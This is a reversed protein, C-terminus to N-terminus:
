KKTHKDPWEEGRQRAEVRDMARELREIKERNQKVENTAQMHTRVVAAVAVAVGVLVGIQDWEFTVAALGLLALPGAAPLKLAEIM